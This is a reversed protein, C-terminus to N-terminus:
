TTMDAVDVLIWEGISGQRRWMYRLRVGDTSQTRLTNSGEKIVATNAGNIAGSFIFDYYLGNCLVKSNKAPLTITRSATFATTFRAINPDGLAVTYNADGKEGSLTGNIWNDVTVYDGSNTGNVYHLAWGANTFYINGISHRCLVSGGGSAVPNGTVTDGGLRMMDFRVNGTGSNSSFIYLPNPYVPAFTSGTGGCEFYGVRVAPAAGFNMMTKATSAAYTAGELRISAFDASFPTQVTILEQGQDANLFELSGVTMSSASWSKFMPGAADDCYLTCSGWRNNPASPYVAASNDYFGGSQYRCRLDHFYSGWPNFMSPATKMAYYGYRFDLHKLTAWFTGNPPNGSFYLNNGSTDSVTQQTNYYLSMRALTWSHSFGASTGVQVVPVNNTYQKIITSGMSEGWISWNYGSPITITDTIKYTGNPLWGQLENSAIYDVWAQLAATDDTSDDGVAGYDRADVLTKWPADIAARVEDAAGIPPTGSIDIFRPM